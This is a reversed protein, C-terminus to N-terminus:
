YSSTEFISSLGKKFELIVAVEESCNFSNFKPEASSCFYFTKLLISYKFRIEEIEIKKKLETFICESLVSFSIKFLFFFFTKQASILSEVLEEQKTYLKQCEM